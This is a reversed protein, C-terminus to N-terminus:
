LIRFIYKYKLYRMTVSEVRIPSNDDPLAVADFEMCKKYNYGYLIKVKMLLRQVDGENPEFEYHDFDKVQLEIIEDRTKRRLTLFGSAPGEEISDFPLEDLQSLQSVVLM